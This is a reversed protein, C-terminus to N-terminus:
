ELDKKFRKIAEAVDKIRFCFRDGDKAEVRELDSLNSLLNGVADQVKEKYKECEDKLDLMQKEAM